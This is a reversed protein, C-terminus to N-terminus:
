EGVPESRNRTMGIICSISQNISQQHPIHSTLIVMRSCKVTKIISYIKDQQMKDKSHSNMPIRRAMMTDNQSPIRFRSRSRPSRLFEM